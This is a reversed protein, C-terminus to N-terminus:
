PTPPTPDKQLREGQSTTPWGRGPDVRPREEAARQAWIDGKLFSVLRGPRPGVTMGADCDDAFVRNGFECPSPTLVEVDKPSM